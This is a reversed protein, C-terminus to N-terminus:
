VAAAQKVDLLAHSKKERAQLKIKQDAFAWMGEQHSIIVITMTGRLAALAAQIHKLNQTDLANTSEDLVLLKPKMLLARALAIRQREGGSLRVGRDGLITDLGEDLDHVFDASAAKLVQWLADDTYDDHGFWTLNDRVSAHFLFVDQTVYAIHRQWATHNSADLRMGDIYIEGSSPTLLGVMLDALTSKGAGSPGIFATTSNKTLKLSLHHIIYTDPKAPYAFSVSNFEIQSEFKVTQVTPQSLVQEVQCAQVLGQIGLYAPLQHLIRQYTQQATSVMPLTRAFVILLLLLSAPPMHMVGIALYLLASLVMVSGCTYVLRSRATMVTVRQNQYELSANVDVLKDIFRTELGSGKLMKLASFQEQIAQFICQNKHLHDRGAKSTLRHLPLMLCLLLLACGMAAMTMKWSLLCALGTYVMVLFLTNILSLLQYNCTAVGQVQTTLSYLVDSMKRKLFFSWPTMLLTRHLSARLYRTYSQQLVVGMVQEVYALLAILSIMVTYVALVSVLTMPIHLHDLMANFQTLIGQSAVAGLSIGILQLLPLILLLGVGSTVSKLFMLCLTMSSRRADFKFLDRLLCSLVRLNSLNFGM